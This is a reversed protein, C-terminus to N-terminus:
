VLPPDMAREIRAIEVEVRGIETMAEARELSRLPAADRRHRLERHLALLEDRTGPLPPRADAKVDHM